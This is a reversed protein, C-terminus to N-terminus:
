AIRLREPEVPVKVEDDGVGMCYDLPAGWRCCDSGRREASESESPGDPSLVSEMDEMDASLRCTLVPTPM